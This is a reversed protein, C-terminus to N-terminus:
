LDGFRAQLAAIAALGATETRLVRPGLRIGTFGNSQLTGRDRPSWGGEPGVAVTISTGAPPELTATTADAFPDLLLRPGNDALAAVAAELSAPPAVDPLRARGSQECASAVVTRWHALRKEAREADLKVESRQSSAPLFAAVGLETSKQLILDMKEGRAIGQVLTIRLPSENDVPRAALVEAEGGRKGASVIRADYDHGDGNFLVCADGERLRLVRLLHQAATEPLAIRAGPALPADIYARTLRM